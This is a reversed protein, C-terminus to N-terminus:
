GFYMLQTGATGPSGFSWSNPVKKPVNKLANRAVGDANVSLCLGIMEFQDAAIDFIEKMLAGRKKLDTTGSAEAFLQM